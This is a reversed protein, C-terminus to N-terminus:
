YRDHSKCADTQISDQRHRPGEGLVGGGSRPTGSVPCTMRRLRAAVPTLSAAPCDQPPSDLKCMADEDNHGIARGTGWTWVEGECTVSVSHLLRAAIDVVGGLGPVVM